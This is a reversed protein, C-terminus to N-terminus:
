ENSLRIATLEDHSFAGSAALTREILASKGTEFWRQWVADYPVVIVGAPL